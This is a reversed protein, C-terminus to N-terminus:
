TPVSQWIIIMLWCIELNADPITLTDILHIWTLLVLEVREFLITFPSIERAKWCIRSSGHCLNMRMTTRGEMTGSNPAGFEALLELQRSTFQWKECSRFMDSRATLLWFNTHEVSNMQSNILFNSTEHHILLWSLWSKSKRISDYTERARAHGPAPGITNPHNLSCGRPTLNMNFRFSPVLHDDTVHSLFKCFLLKCLHNINISEKDESVM